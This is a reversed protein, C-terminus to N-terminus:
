VYRTRTFRYLQTWNDMRAIFSALDLRLALGNKAKRQSSPTKMAPHACAKM